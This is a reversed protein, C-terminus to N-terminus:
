AQREYSGRGVVVLCWEIVAGVPLVKAGPPLRPGRYQGVVVRDGPKLWLTVRNYPVHFGLMKSFFPALDEHGVASELGVRVKLDLVDEAQLPRVSIEANLSELMNLSFANCLYV